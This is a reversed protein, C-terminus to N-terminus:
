LVFTKLAMEDICLICQRAVESFNKLKFALFEFMFDNIGPSLEYNSTITRLTRPSPLKLFSQLFTYVKPGM